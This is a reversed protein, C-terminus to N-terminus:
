RRCFSGALVYSRSAANALFGYGFISPLPPALDLKSLAAAMQHGTLEHLYPRWDAAVALGEILGVNFVPYPVPGRRWRVSVGFLRDGHLGAFVHALEHKLVPHPFPSWNLYIENRWPKAILTRGAGMLRRKDEDSRFVFSTIRPPSAKFIASLQSYRFEHDQALLAVEAPKMEAPYHITFHATHKTGGLAHAVHAADISFGLPARLWFLVVGVTALVFAAAPTAWRGAGPRPRAPRPVARRRVPRRFPRGLRLEAPEFLHAAAFLAAAAWVLNYARYVLFPARIAVDEDYLTGPFYGVFPDHGFIAPAAYFRYLGWVVSLLLTLLAGFTALAARPVALAWLVGTISALTVSLVPMMGFFALGELYDCNKVRLANASIVALPVVLLSLNAAVCRAVLAFLAGTPPRLGLMM